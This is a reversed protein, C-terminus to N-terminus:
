WIIHLLVHRKTFATNKLQSSENQSNNKSMIYFQLLSKSWSLTTRITFLSRIPLRLYLPEIRALPTCTKKEVVDLSDRM